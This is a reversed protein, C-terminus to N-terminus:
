QFQPRRGEKLASMAELLNKMIVPNRFSEDLNKMHAEESQLIERHLSLKTHGFASTPVKLIQDLKKQTLKRLNERSDAVDDVLGIQRAEDAKFIGGYIVENIRHPAICTKVKEVVTGPLPLGFFVETFSIRGKGALMFKFDSAITIVAGGGMAYGTVEAVLPKDFKMLYNFFLVIQGMEEALRSQETQIINQADVGNSFFKENESTLVVARLEPDKRIEELISELELLNDRTFSNQENTQLTIFVAKGGRLGAVERKYNM